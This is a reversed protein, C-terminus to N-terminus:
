SMLYKQSSLIAKDPFEILMQFGSFWLKGVKHWPCFFRIFSVKALPAEPFVFPSLHFSAHPYTPFLLSFSSLFCCLLFKQFVWIQGITKRFLLLSSWPIEFLPLSQPHLCISIFVSAKLGMYFVYMGFPWVKGGQVTKRGNERCTGRESEPSACSLPAASVQHWTQTVSGSCTGWALRAMRRICFRPSACQQMQDFLFVSYSIVKKVQKSTKQGM